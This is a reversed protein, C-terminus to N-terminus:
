DRWVAEMVRVFNGNCIREIRDDSWGRSKM